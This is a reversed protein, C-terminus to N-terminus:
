ALDSPAFAATSGVAIRGSPPQTRNNPACNAPLKLPRAQATLPIQDSPLPPNARPRDTTFSRGSPNTALARGFYTARPRRPPPRKSFLFTFQERALSYKPTRYAPFACGDLAGHPNRRAERPIGRALAPKPQHPAASAASRVRDADRGVTSCPRRTHTAPRASMDPTRIRRISYWSAKVSRTRRSGQRERVRPPAAQYSTPSM